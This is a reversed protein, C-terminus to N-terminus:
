VTEEHQALESRLNHCFRIMGYVTKSGAPCLKAKWDDSIRISKEKFFRPKFRTGPKHVKVKYSFVRDYWTSKGKKEDTFECHYNEPTIITWGAQNKVWTYGQCTQDIHAKDEREKEIAKLRNGIKVMSSPTLGMLQSQILIKEEKDTLAARGRSM